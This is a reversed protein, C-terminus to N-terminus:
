KKANKKRPKSSSIKDSQDKITTLIKWNKDGRRMSSWELNGNNLNKCHIIVEPRFGDDKFHSTRREPKNKGKGNRKAEMYEDEFQINKVDTLSKDLLMEYYNIKPVVVSHVDRFPVDNFRRWKTGSFGQGLRDVNGNRILERVSSSSVWSKVNNELEEISQDGDYKIFVTAYSKISAGILAKTMFREKDIFMNEHHDTYWADSCGDPRTNCIQMKLVSQQEEHNVM